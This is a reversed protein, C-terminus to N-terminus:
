KVEQLFMLMSEVGYLVYVLKKLKEYNLSKCQLFAPFRVCKKKKIELFNIRQGERSQLRDGNTVGQCM